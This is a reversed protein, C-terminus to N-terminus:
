EVSGAKIALENLEQSRQNREILYREELEHAM